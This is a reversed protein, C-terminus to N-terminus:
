VDNIAKLNGRFHQRRFKAKIAKFLQEEIAANTATLEKANQEIEATIDEIEKNRFAKHM